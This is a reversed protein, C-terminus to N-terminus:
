QSRLRSKLFNIFADLNTDYWFDKGIRRIPASSVTESNIVEIWEIDKKCWATNCANSLGSSVSIFRDCKNFLEAAERITLDGVFYLQDPYVLKLRVLLENNSKCSVFVIEGNKCLINIVAEAWEANWFTQGSEGHFEMINKFRSMNISSCLQNVKDIEENTLRLITELPLTYSVDAEELARVWACILNTGLCGNYMSTWKDPNVMPHPRFIKNYGRGNLHGHVTILQHLADQKAEAAISILKNIYPNNHFASAYITSTYVDILCDPWHDKLPKFMLTSNINDGWSGPQLIAIKYPTGQSYEPFCTTDIMPPHQTKLPKRNIRKQMTPVQQQYVRKHARQDNM